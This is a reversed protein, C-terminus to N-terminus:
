LKKVNVASLGRPGTEVEFSVKDNESIPETLQNIHVFVREGSQTDNIFGFGKSENFFSVVGSRTSDLEEIAEQKPVGIQIDEPNFVKIKQPDPPTSSINGDEDIYAMMDDLSKGKGANAKREEMREKKEQRQKQRKKEKEKKNFSEKSKAM